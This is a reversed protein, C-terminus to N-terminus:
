TILSDFAKSVDLYLALVKLKNDISKTIFDLMDDMATNTSYLQRFSHQHPNLVNHESFFAQLRNLTPKELLKSFVPLLSILRYNRVDTKDGSKFIPIIEAIKMANPFVGNAFSKNFIKFLLTVIVPFILKMIKCSIGDYGFFAKSAFSNIINIIEVNVVPMIFFSNSARNQLYKNFINQPQIGKVANPGLNVFYDKLEDAPMNEYPTMGTNKYFQENIIQWIKKVNSRNQYIFNRYIIAINLTKLLRGALM